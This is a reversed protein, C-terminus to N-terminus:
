DAPAQFAEKGAGEAMGSLQQIATVLGQLYGTGVTEMWADVQGMTLSPHVVGHRIGLKDAKAVSTSSEAILYSIARPLARIRVVKGDPLVYDAEDAGVSLLSDASAYETM